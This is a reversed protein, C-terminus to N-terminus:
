LENHAYFCDGKWNRVNNGIYAKIKHYEENDKVVHDHFRDQWIGNEFGLKVAQSSIASKMGRLMAQITNSSPKSFDEYRDPDFNSEGGGIRVLGHWHNPMVIFGHDEFLPRMAFSKIWQEWIIAGLDNLCMIENRIEGFCCVQNRSCVTIFYDGSRGYDFQQLRASKRNPLHKSLMILSALLNIWWGDFLM